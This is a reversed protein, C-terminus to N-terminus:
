SAAMAYRGRRPAVAPVPANPTAVEANSRSPAFVPQVQQVQTNDSAPGLVNTDASCAGLLLVAGFLLTCKMIRSKV